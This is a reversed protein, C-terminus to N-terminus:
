LIKYAKVEKNIETQVEVFVDELWWPTSEGKRVWGNTRQMWGHVSVSGAVGCDVRVGDDDTWEYRVKGEGKVDFWEIAARCDNHSTAIEWLIVQPEIINGCKERDLIETIMKAAKERFKRARAMLQEDDGDGFGYKRFYDKVRFGGLSLRDASYGGELIKKRKM